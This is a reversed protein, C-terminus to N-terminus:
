GSVAVGYGPFVNRSDGPAPTRAGVPYKILVGRPTLSPRSTVAIEDGFNYSAQLGSPIDRLIGFAATNIMQSVNGSHAIPWFGDKFITSLGGFPISTRMYWSEYPGFHYRLQGSANYTTLRLQEGAGININGSPAEIRVGSTAHEIITGSSFITSSNNRQDVGLWLNPDNQGSGYIVVCNPAIYTIGAMPVGAGPSVAANLSPAGSIAIGYGQMSLKTDTPRPVTAGVPYKILVGRPSLSPRSTIAIEDGYNYSQQLGSPVDRLIGAVAQNILQKINGSHAIPWFGDNAPGGTTGDFDGHIAWATYPGGRFEFVGSSLFANATFQENAIWQFNRSSTLWDNTITGQLEGLILSLSDVVHFVGGNDSYLELSANGFSGGADLILPGDITHIQIRKNTGFTTLFINGNQAWMDLTGSSAITGNLPDAPDIGLWLHGNAGTTADGSGQFVLANNTLYSIGYSHPNLPSLTYGSVALGYSQATILDTPALPVSADRLKLVIGDSSRGNTKILVEDGVYYASQLSNNGSAVAIMEKISGSHPIPWYGDNFPGGTFTDSTKIYWSQYPGFRYELLGSGFASLKVQQNALVTYDGRGGGGGASIFLISDDTTQVFLGGSPRINLIGFPALIAADLANSGLAFELPYNIGGDVSLGFAPAKSLFPHASRQYRLVGSGGIAADHLVGSNMHIHGFPRIERGFGNLGSQEVGLSSSGSAQPWLDGVVRAM